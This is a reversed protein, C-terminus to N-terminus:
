NNTQRSKGKKEVREEGQGEEWCWGVGRGELDVGEM